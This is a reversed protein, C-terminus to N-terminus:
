LLHGLNLDLSFDKLYDGELVPAVSFGPLDQFVVVQGPLFDLSDLAVELLM